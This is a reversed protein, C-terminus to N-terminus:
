ALTEGDGRDDGAGGAARELRLGARLGALFRVVKGRLFRTISRNSTTRAVSLMADAVIHQLTQGPAMRESSAPHTLSGM